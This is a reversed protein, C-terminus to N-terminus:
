IVVITNVRQYEDTTRTTSERYILTEKSVATKAISSVM